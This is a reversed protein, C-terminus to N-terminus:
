TSNLINEQKNRLLPNKIRYIGGVLVIFVQNRATGGGHLYEASTVNKM